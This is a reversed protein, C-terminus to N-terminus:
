YKEIVRCDGDNQYIREQDHGQVDKVVCRCGVGSPRPFCGERLDAVKQRLEENMQHKNMAAQAIQKGEQAATDRKLINSHGYACAITALLFLSIKFGIMTKLPFLLYFALKIFIFM